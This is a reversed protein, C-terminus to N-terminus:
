TGTEYEEQLNWTYESGDKLEFGTLLKTIELDVNINHKYIDYMYKAVELRFDLRLKEIKKLEKKLKRPLRNEM